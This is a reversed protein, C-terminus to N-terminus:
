RKLSLLNMFWKVGISANLTKNQMLDATNANCGWSYFVNAHFALTHRANVFPFFEVGAGAMKLETGQLVTFDAGTDTKNVDYTMKGYINWKGNPRYQVEGMVSLDKFATWHSVSARNMVDLEVSVKDFTFKNGLAVYNIFKGPLYEIFNVSWIPAFCGHNADWKLNYAYMNRNDSTYFPSQCFQVTFRDAESTRLSVSAGIDYCPINNWFVSCGYLDIPARDYEWGGIAVVQKGGAFSWRGLDYNLYIWDTADFFSSDKHPKNFRQRWSYSLNDTLNGDLRLNLYKGAFGSYDKELDGDQWNGQWDLRAEVRLNLIKEDTEPNDAWVTMACSTLALALIFRKMFLNLTIATLLNNNIFGVEEVTPFPHLAPARM